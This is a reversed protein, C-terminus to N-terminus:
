CLDSQGILGINFVVHKCLVVRLKCRIIEERFFQFKIFRILDYKSKQWHSATGTGPFDQWRTSVYGGIYLQRRGAASTFPFAPDIYVVTTLAQCATVHQSM